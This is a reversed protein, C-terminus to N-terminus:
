VQSVHSKFQGRCIRLNVRSPTLEGYDALRSHITACWGDSFTGYVGCLFRFFFLFSCFFCFSFYLVSYVSCQSLEDAIILCSVQVKFSPLQISLDVADNGIPIDISISWNMIIGIENRCDPAPIIKIFCWPRSPKNMFFGGLYKFIRWDHFLIVNPKINFPRM